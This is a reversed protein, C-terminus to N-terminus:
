LCKPHIRHDQSASFDRKQDVGVGQGQGPIVGRGDVCFRRYFERQFPRQVARRLARRMGLCCRRGDCRRRNATQPLDVRFIDVIKDLESAQAETQAIATITQEILAANHQTMEDVQRVAQNIESIAALLMSNARATAAAHRTTESIGGSVVGLQSAAEAVHGSARRAPPTQNRM